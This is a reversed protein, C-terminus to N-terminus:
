RSSKEAQCETVHRPTVGSKAFAAIIFVRKPCAAIMPLLDVYSPVGDLLRKLLDAGRISVIRPHRCQQGLGTIIPLMAAECHTVEIEGTKAVDGM